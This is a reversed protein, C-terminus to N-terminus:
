SEGKDKLGKKFHKLALAMFIYLLVLIVLGLTGTSPHHSTVNM